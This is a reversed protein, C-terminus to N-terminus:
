KKNAYKEEMIERATEAIGQLKKANKKAKDFMKQILKEETKTLKFALLDHLCAAKRVTRISKWQVEIWEWYLELNMEHMAQEYPHAELYDTFVKEATMGGSHLWKDWLEHLVDFDPMSKPKVKKVM